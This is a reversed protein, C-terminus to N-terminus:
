LRSECARNFAALDVLGNPPNLFDDPQFSPPPAPMPLRPSGFLTPWLRRLRNLGDPDERGLETVVQTAPQADPDRVSTYRRKKFAKALYRSVSEEPLDPRGIWSPPDNVWEVFFELQGDDTERHQM